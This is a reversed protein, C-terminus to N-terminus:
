RQLCFAPQRYTVEYVSLVLAGEVLLNDLDPTVEQERINLEKVGTLANLTPILRRLVDGAVQHMADADRDSQETCAISGVLLRFQRQEDIGVRNLLSDANWRTVLTYEGKKLPIASTPNRRNPVGQLEPATELATAVADFIRWRASYRQDFTPM